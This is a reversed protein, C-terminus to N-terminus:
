IVLEITEGDETFAIGRAYLELHPAFPDLADGLRAYLSSAARLLAGRTEFRPLMTGAAKTLRERSHDFSIPWRYPSEISGIRHWKSRRPAPFPTGCWVAARALAELALAEAAVIDIADFAARDKPPPVPHTDYVSNTGGHCGYCPGGGYENSQNSGHCWDCEIETTHVYGREL